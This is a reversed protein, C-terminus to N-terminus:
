ASRKRVTDGPVDSDAVKVPIEASERSCGCKSATKGAEFFSSKSGCCVKGVKARDQSAYILRM